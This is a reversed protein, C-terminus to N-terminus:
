RPSHRSDDRDQSPQRDSARQVGLDCGDVFVGAAAGAEAPATRTGGDETLRLLKPAKTASAGSVPLVALMLMCVTLLGTGFLKIGRVKDGKM